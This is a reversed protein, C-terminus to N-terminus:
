AGPKTQLRSKRPIDCFKNLRKQVGGMVDFQDFTIKHLDTHVKTIRVGKKAVLNIANDIFTSRKIVDEGFLYLYHHQFWRVKYRDVYSIVVDWCLKM